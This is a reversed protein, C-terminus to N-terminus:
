FRRNEYTRRFKKTFELDSEKKIPVANGSHDLIDFIAEKQEFSLLEKNYIVTKNITNKLFGLRNVLYDSYSKNSQKLYDICIDYDMMTLELLIIFGLYTHKYYNSLSLLNNNDDIFGEHDLYYYDIHLNDDNPILLSRNINHYDSPNIDKIKLYNNNSSIIKNKDFICGIHEYNLVSIVFDYYPNFYKHKVIFDNFITKNEESKNIFTEVENKCFNLIEKDDVIIENNSLIFKSEM